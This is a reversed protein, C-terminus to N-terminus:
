VSYMSLIYYYNTLSTDYMIGTYTVIDDNGVYAGRGTSLDNTTRYAKKTGTEDFVIIQWNLDPTRM